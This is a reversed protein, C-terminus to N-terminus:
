VTLAGDRVLQQCTLLAGTLLYVAPCICNGLEACLCLMARVSCLLHIALRQMEILICPPRSCPLQARFLHRRPPVQCACWCGSMVITWQIVVDVAGLVAATRQFWGLSNSSNANWWYCSFFLNLNAFGWIHFVLVARYYIGAATVCWAAAQLCSMLLALFVSYDVLMPKSSDGAGLLVQLWRLLVRPGM